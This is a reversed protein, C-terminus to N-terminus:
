LHKNKKKKKENEEEVKEKRVVQKRAMSYGAKKRWDSRYRTGARWNRTNLLEMIDQGVEDESKRPGEEESVKKELIRQPIKNVFTRLLHGARM